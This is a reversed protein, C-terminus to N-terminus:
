LLVSGDCIECSRWGWDHHFPSKTCWDIIGRVLRSHRVGCATSCSRTDTYSRDAPFTRPLHYPVPHISPYASPALIDILRPMLETPRSIPTGVYDSALSTYSVTFGILSAGYGLIGSANVKTAAKATESVALHLHSGNIGVIVVYLIVIVPFSSLSYM